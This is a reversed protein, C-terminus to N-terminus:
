PKGIPNAVYNKHNPPLKRIGALNLQRVIFMAARCRPQPRGTEAPSRQVNRGQLTATPPWASESRHVNSGQLTATPPRKGKPSEQQESYQSLTRGGQRGYMDYSTVITTFPFCASVKSKTRNEASHRFFYIPPGQHNLCFSHSQHM